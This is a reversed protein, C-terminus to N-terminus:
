FTNSPSNALFSLFHGLIAQCLTLGPHIESNGPSYSARQHSISVPLPPFMGVISEM